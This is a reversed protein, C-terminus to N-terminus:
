RNKLRGQIAAAAHALHQKHQMCLWIIVALWIVAFIFYNRSNGLYTYALGSLLCFFTTGYIKTKPLPQWLRSSAETKMVCFLWFSIATAMAAGRAGLHPVLLHLLGFNCLLASLAFVTILWTRKSVNIGIGTVETLTYFLPFLISSLLIFQVPAYEQPLLIPILPSFLGVLCLIATCLALMAEVIHTIKNLHIGEKVWKFVMPAWITSFISQFILAVAGFSVAMSYIGLESLGALQKLLFRDVASLGWYALGGLALPLGYRLTEQMLPLSFPARVAKSLEHRTQLVLVAVTLLQALAYALILNFTTKPLSFLVYALILALILIKPILQSLSFAYAREQMRLIVSLYRALLTTFFFILCLLGLSADPLELVWQAPLELKFLLVLCVAALLLLPLATITKFLAPKNDSAHYERIYAQDLGLSMVLLIMASVTQLLVIRGIDEPSFYWSILPLSIAGAAASGLPGLAYGLLKNANM